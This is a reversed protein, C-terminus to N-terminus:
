VQTRQKRRYVYFGILAVGIMLSMGALFAYLIQASGSASDALQTAQAPQQVGQPQTASAATEDTIEIVNNYISKKDQGYELELAVAYSGPTVRGPWAVPYTVETGTVFTGMAIPQKLLQKGNSDSLTLTGSPKLFLGGDNRMEVGLYTGSPYTLLKVNGISISPKAIGPVDVEVGIVYRTKTVITSSFGDSTPPKASNLATDSLYAAIGALYQGPRAADPTHLTFGVKQQKKPDLTVSARDLQIWSAVGTPASDIDAFASGGKQATTADVTALQITIPQTGINRVLVAGTTDTGPQLSYTFYGKEAVHPNEEAVPFLDFQKTDGQDQADAHLPSIFLIAITAILLVLASTRM